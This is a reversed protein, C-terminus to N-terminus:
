GGVTITEKGVKWSLEFSFEEKDDKRSAKIEVKLKGKPQLELKEPGQQLMLNGRRMGDVIAEFYVVAEEKEMENKFKIKADEKSM